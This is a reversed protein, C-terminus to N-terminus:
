RELTKARAKNLLQVLAEVDSDDTIFNTVCARIVNQGAIKTLSVWADGAKTVREVIDSLHNEEQVDSAGDVFCVVPLPTVNVVRWRNVKLKERLLNGMATQHRLVEVYGDWGAVALSLFVKLGIFRRSWQLSHLYPDVERADM